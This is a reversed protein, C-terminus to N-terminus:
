VQGGVGRKKHTGLDIVCHQSDFHHVSHKTLYDRYHKVARKQPGIRRVDPRLGGTIAFCSFISSLYSPPHTLFNKIGATQQSMPRFSIVCEPSFLCVFLFYISNFM